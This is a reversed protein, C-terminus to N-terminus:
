LLAGLCGKVRLDDGLLLLEETRHDDVGDLGDVLLGKVLLVDADLLDGSAGDSVGEEDLSDAKLFSERVCTELLLRLAESIVGLNEAQVEFKLELGLFIASLDPKLVRIIELSNNVGLPLNDVVFKILDM